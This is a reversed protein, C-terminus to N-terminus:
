VNWTRATSAAPLRSAVGAVRAHVTSVVAGCVVISLPGLPETASLSGDNRNEAVGMPPLLGALRQALM